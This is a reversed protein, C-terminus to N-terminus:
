WPLHSCSVDSSQACGECVLYFPIHCKLHCCGFSCVFLFYNGNVPIRSLCYQYLTYLLQQTHFLPSLHPPTPFHPDLLLLNALIWYLHTLSCCPLVSTEAERVVAICPPQKSLALHPRKCRLGGDTSVLCRLPAQCHFGFDPSLLTQTVLLNLKPIMLLDQPVSKHKSVILGFM